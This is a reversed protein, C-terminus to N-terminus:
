SHKRDPVAATLPSEADADLESEDENYDVAAAPIEADTMVSADSVASPSSEEKVPESLESASSSSFRALAVLDFCRM